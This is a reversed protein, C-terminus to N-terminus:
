LKELTKEMEVVAGAQGKKSKIKRYNMKEYFAAATVSSDLNITFVGQKRAVREIAQLLIKGIGKGQFEPAVFFSSLKNKELAATGVINEGVLAVLCTRGLNIQVINEPSYYELLPALVEPPYDTSNSIRITRRILNSVSAGDEPKFQRITPM